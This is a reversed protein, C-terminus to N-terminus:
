RRRKKKKLLLAIVIIGAVPIGVYILGKKIGSWQSAAQQQQALQLELARLEREARPFETVEKYREYIDLGKNIFGTLNDALSVTTTNNPM